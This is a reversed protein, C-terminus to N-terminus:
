QEKIQSGVARQPRRGKWTEDLPRQQQLAGQSDHMVSLSVRWMLASGRRSHKMADRVGDADSIKIGAQVQVQTDKTSHPSGLVRCM